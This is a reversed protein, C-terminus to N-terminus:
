GLWDLLARVPTAYATVSWLRNPDEKRFEHLTLLKSLTARILLQDFAPVMTFDDLSARNKRYLGIWFAFLATAYAAPRWAPTFDIIAPPIGPAVLINADNLDVHILQHKFPPLPQRRALLPVALQAIDADLDEPVNEWASREARTYPTDKTVLLEPFPADILAQHFAEITPLVVPVDGPTV